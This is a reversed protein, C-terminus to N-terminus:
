CTSYAHFEDGVRVVRAGGRYIGNKKCNEIVEMQCRIFRIFAPDPNDSPSDEVRVRCDPVRPTENAAVRLTDVGPEGGTAVSMPTQCGYLFMVGIGFLGPLLVSTLRAYKM